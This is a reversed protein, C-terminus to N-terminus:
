GDKQTDHNRDKFYHDGDLRKMRERSKRSYEIVFELVLAIGAMICVATGIAVIIHVLFYLVDDKPM